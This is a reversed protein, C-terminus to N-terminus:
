NNLMYFTLFLQVYHLVQDFGIVSFAGLNPISSGLQNKNFKKSVIKSTFYDTITHALFTILVFYTGNEIGLLCFAPILWICSYVITHSLLALNNKSKNIAWKEDQFVFDAIWHIVIIFLYYIM